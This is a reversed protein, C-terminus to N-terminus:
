MGASQPGGQMPAVGLRGVVKNQDQVIQQTLYKQYNSVLEQFLQDGQFQRQLKQSSQMTQMLTQMRLQPNIGKTPMDPEIGVAMQSIAGKTDNIEKQTVNEQPRISRAALVPDFARAAWEIAPGRDLTSGADLSFLDAFAKLKKVAFEQNLDRADIAIIADWGGRIDEPTMEVPTDGAGTVRALQVPTYFQQCLQMVMKFAARWLGFFTEIEDQIIISSRSPDEGPLARGVYEAAENRTTKEMEISAMPPPGPPMQEFDDMRQVPIQAAPGMIIDYSARQIKVKLPPLTALQTHDSRADRCIKIETQHTEIPRTLGRSDTIQRGLRERGRIVFPYFGNANRMLEAKLVSDACAASWCFCWIGPIGLEDARREYSWWIEYLSDHENVARGTGSLALPNMTGQQVLGDVFTHGPGKDIIEDVEESDWGMTVVRERLEVESLWERRHLSRARQLDATGPPMFFEDGLRLTEVSPRNVRIVPVALEAEGTQGLDRAARKLAKLSVGPFARALWDVFERQRMPNVVLDAFDMLIAPNLRPDNPQVVDPNQEGTAYMVGLDDANLTRAQQMVDQLWKIEVVAIGPDDGHLYQAALEVETELEERMERDRLWRLLTTAKQASSADDPEVAVAQIDARFFAHKALRVKENIFDDTLPVRTDAAGNFPRPEEGLDERHKRGDRSQGEWLNFRVARAQAQRTWIETSDAIIAGLERRLEAAGEEGEEDNLKM